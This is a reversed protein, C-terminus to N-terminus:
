HSLLPNCELKDALTVLVCSRIYSARIWKCHTLRCLCRFQVSTSLSHYVQDLVIWWNGNVSLMKFM